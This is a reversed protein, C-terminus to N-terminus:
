ADHDMEPKGDVKRPHDDPLWGSEDPRPVGLREPTWYKNYLGAYASRNVYSQRLFDMLALKGAKVTANLRMRTWRDRVKTACRGASLLRDLCIMQIKFTAFRRARSHKRASYRRWQTQVLVVANVLEQDESPANFYFELVNTYCNRKRDLEGRLFTWMNKDEPHRTFKGNVKIREMNSDGGGRVALNVLKCAAKYEDGRELRLRYTLGGPNAVDLLNMWGVKEGLLMQGSPGLAHRMLNSINNRDVIRTFCAQMVMARQSPRM